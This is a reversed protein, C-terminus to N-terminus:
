APVVGSLVLAPLSEGSAPYFILTHKGSYAATFSYNGTTANSVVSGILAGSDERYVYVTRAANANTADKVNGSIVVGSATTEAGAASFAPETAQFKKVAIWRVKGVTGSDYVNMLNVAAAATSAGSATSIVQAGNVWLSAAGGARRVQMRYYTSQYRSALQTKGGAVVWESSATSDWDNQVGITASGTGFGFLGVYSQTTTPPNVLGMVEQGDGFQATSTIARAGGTTTLSFEGSSVAAGGTGATQSWKAVNLSSGSFDDFLDFVAFGNSATAVGLNYVCQVQQSTGLDATVKVWIWAVRNPTTGTVQEVWSSLDNGSADRFKIDGPDGQASPFMATATGLNFHSGTAGSSEGVKLLVPYNVGAGAAGSITVLKQYAAM